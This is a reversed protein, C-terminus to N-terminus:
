SSLTESREHIIKELAEQLTPNKEEMLTELFHWAEPNNVQTLAQIAELRVPLSFNKGRLLPKKRAIDQLFPLAEVQGLRGLSQCVAILFTDNNEFRTERIKAAKMLVPLGATYRIKGIVLAAMSAIEESDDFVALRLAPGGAPENIEEILGILNLKLERNGKSVWSSLQLSLGPDMGCARLVPIMMRVDNEEQLDALWEGLASRIPEKIENFLKFFEPKETSPALFYDELLLPAAMEGLLPFHNLQGAKHACYVFRRILEPTFHEFLWYRAIHSREPFAAVDEDAHFHLTSLLTLAPQDKELEMAPEMLDWALLLASQYIGPYTENALLSNLQDLVKELLEPNRVWPRADMLHNLSLQRELGDGNLGEALATVTKEVLEHEGNAGWYALCDNVLGETSPDFLVSTWNNRIATELLPYMSIIADGELLEGQPTKFWAYINKFAPSSKQMRDLLRDFLKDFSQLLNAVEPTEELAKRQLQSFQWAEAIFSLLAKNTEDASSDRNDAASTTVQLISAEAPIELEKLSLPEVATTEMPIESMIQALKEAPEEPVPIEAIVPAEVAEPKTVEVDASIFRIYSSIPSNESGSKQEVIPFTIQQLWITLEAAPLGKHIEVGQINKDQFIKLLDGLESLVCDNAYLEGEKVYLVLPSVLQLIKQLDKHLKQVAQVVFPSDASYFSVYSLAARFDRVLQVLFIKQFEPISVVQANTM